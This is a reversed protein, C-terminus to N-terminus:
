SVASLLRFVDPHLDAISSCHVPSNSVFPLIVMDIKRLIAKEEDPTYSAHPLEVLEGKARDPGNSAADKSVDMLDTKGRSVTSQEPNVQLCRSCSNGSITRGVAPSLM